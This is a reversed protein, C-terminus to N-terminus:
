VGSVGNKFYYASQVEVIYLEKGERLAVAAHSAHSGSSVMYFPDMGDMRRALLLDGDKIRESEIEVEEIVRREPEM